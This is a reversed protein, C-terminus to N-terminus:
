VVAADFAYRGPLDASLLLLLMHLGCTLGQGGSHMVLCAIGSKTHAVHVPASGKGGMFPEGGGGGGPVCGPLGSFPPPIGTKTHAVHKHALGRGGM